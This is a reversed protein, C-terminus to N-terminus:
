RETLNQQSWVEVVNQFIHIFVNFCKNRFIAIHQLM